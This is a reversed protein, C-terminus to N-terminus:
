RIGGGTGGATMVQTTSVKKRGLRQQDLARSSGDILPEHLNKNGYQSSLFQAQPHSHEGRRDTDVMPDIHVQMDGIMISYGMQHNPQSGFSM